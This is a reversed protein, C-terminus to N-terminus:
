GFFGRVTAIVHDREDATLEPFIPLSLVAAAAAESV